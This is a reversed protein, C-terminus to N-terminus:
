PEQLATSSKTRQFSGNAVDVNEVWVLYGIQNNQGRVGWIRCVCVCVDVGGCVYVYM